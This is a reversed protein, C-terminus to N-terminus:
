MRVVWQLNLAIALEAGRVYSVGTLARAKVQTIRYTWRYEVGSKLATHSEKRMHSTLSQDASLIAIRAANIIYGLTTNKELTCEYLSPLKRAQGDVKVVHMMAAHLTVWLTQTMTESAVKQMTVNMFTSFSVM